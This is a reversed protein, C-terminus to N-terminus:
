RLRVPKPLSHQELNPLLWPNCHTVRDTLKMSYFLYGRYYSGRQPCAQHLSGVDLEAKGSLWSRVMSLSGLLFFGLVWGSGGTADSPRLNAWDKSHAMGVAGWKQDQFSIISPSLELEQPPPLDTKGELM